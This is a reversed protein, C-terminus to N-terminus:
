NQVQNSNNSYTVVPFVTEPIDCFNRPIQIIQSYKSATDKLRSEKGQAEQLCLTLIKGLSDTLPLFSSVAPSVACHSLAERGYLITSSTSPSECTSIHEDNRNRSSEEKLQCLNLQLHAAIVKM